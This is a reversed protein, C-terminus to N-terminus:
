SRDSTSDLSYIRRVQKQMVSDPTKKLAINRLSRFLPNGLHCIKGISWSTSVTWAVKKRRLQEFRKWAAESLGLEKFTDALALADEVAMAGGQGLNPTTAHAADGILGIRGSSWQTLPKLDSIDTRLIDQTRTNQLLGIWQPFYARFLTEAHTRIESASSVEGAPADFTMYWYYDDANIKSFGVRCGKAWIEYAENEAEAPLIHAGRAIARYSSSGSYRKEGGLGAMRRMQSNFGDAGVIIASACSSGDSLSAFVQDGSQTVSEVECGFRVSDAELQEFLLRQLVGRHLAVTEFGYEKAIQSMNTTQIDGSQWDQLRLLKVTWGAEIIKEAFGLRAFVQMPNAAMWIGAGVEVLGASREVLKVKYGRQQLAIAM